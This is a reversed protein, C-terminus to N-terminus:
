KDNEKQAPPQILYKLWDVEFHHDEGNIRVILDAHHAGQLAMLLRKISILQLDTVTNAPLYLAANEIERKMSGSLIHNCLVRIDEDAVHRGNNLRESCIHALKEAEDHTM